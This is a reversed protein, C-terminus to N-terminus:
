VLGREELFSIIDERKAFHKCAPRDLEIVYRGSYENKCIPLIDHKMTRWWKCEECTKGM